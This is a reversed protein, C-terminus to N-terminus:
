TVEEVVVGENPRLELRDDVRTGDREPDTGVLVRGPRVAAVSRMRDALNVAVFVRSRGAARQFALTGDPTGDVLELDGRALAPHEGRLAILRRTLTLMSAPDDRQAAVNV